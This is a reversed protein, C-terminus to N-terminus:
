QQPLWQPLLSLSVRERRAIRGIEGTGGEPRVWGAPWRFCHPRCTDAMTSLFLALPPHAQIGLHLSPGSIICRQSDVLKV